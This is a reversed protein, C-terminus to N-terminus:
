STFAYFGFMFILFLGYGFLGFLAIPAFVWVVMTAVGIFLLLCLTFLGVFIICLRLVMGLLRSVFNILLASAIADFDWKKRPKETMRKWPSFLSRALNGISFVHVVGWILNTWVHLFAQLGKQYHWLFYQPALTLIFMCITYLVM